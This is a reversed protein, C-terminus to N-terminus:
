LKQDSLTVSKKRPKANEATKYQHENEVAPEWINQVLVKHPWKMKRSGAYMLQPNVWYVYKMVTPQIYGYRQLEEVAKKHTNRGGKGVSRAYQDPTMQIYDKAAKITYQIYVMMRLAGSSLNMAREKADPFRYLRLAKEKEIVSTAPIMTGDEDKVMASPSVIKTCKITLADVFPNLGLTSENVIPLKAMIEEDTQAFKSGKTCSEMMEKM